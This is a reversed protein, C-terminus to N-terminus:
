GPCEPGEADEEWPGGDDIPHRGAFGTETEHWWAVTPEGVRWCLWVARGKRRAPFDILGDRLDKVQVGARDLLSVTADLERLLRFYDPRVPEDCLVRAPRSREMRRFIRCLRETAPRVVALARRARDPTFLPKSM